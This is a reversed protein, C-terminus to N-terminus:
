TKARGYIRVITNTPLGAGFLALCLQNRLSRALYGDSRYREASTVAPTEFLQLRRRGLRRVLDIDEMIPLDRYGGVSDFLRRSILLGQDGYPMALLACRLHVSAELARARFGRDNLRFRFVGAADPRNQSEIDRIFGCAETEWGPLLVTDAHLFLLWPFRAVAAGRRLQGGRSPPSLIVDAGALDAIDPTRDRSGGDVVIVERVCGDVAAPVLAGLTAALTREANLAPIVVSIM